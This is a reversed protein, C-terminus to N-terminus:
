SNRRTGGRATNVFWEPVGAAVSPVLFAAAWFAGIMLATGAFAVLFGAAEAQPAYLRFLGFLLLVAALLKLLSQVAYPGSALSEVSPFKPSISLSLLDAAVLLVGAVMVALGGWPDLRVDNAIEKRHEM